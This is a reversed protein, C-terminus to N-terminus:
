RGCQGLAADRELTRVLQFHRSERQQRGAAALEHRVRAPLHAFRYRPGHRHWHHCVHRLPRLRDVHARPLPRAPQKARRPPCGPSVTLSLAPTAPLNGVKLELVKQFDTFSQCPILLLYHKIFEEAPEEPTMIVKLLTDIKLVSKSM